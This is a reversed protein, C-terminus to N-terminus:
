QPPADGASYRALDARRLRIQEAFREAITPDVSGLLAEADDLLARARARADAADRNPAYKIAEDARRILEWVEAPEM